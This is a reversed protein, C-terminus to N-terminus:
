IELDINETYKKCKLCCSEIKYMAFCSTDTLCMFQFAIKFLPM